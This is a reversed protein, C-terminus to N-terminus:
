VQDSDTRKEIKTQQAELLFDKTILTINDNIKPTNENSIVKGEVRAISYGRKLVQNPHLANKLKETANLAQNREKVFSETQRKLKVTLQSLEKEQNRRVTHEAKAMQALLSELKREQSGIQSKVENLIIRSLSQLQQQNNQIGMRVNGIVQNSIRDIRNFNFQLRNVARMQLREIENNLERETQKQFQPVMKKILDTMQELPREFAQFCRVLMEALETPTIGNQHAIMEAVTLNTSHGIGTWVPIPFQAIAKCLEYNNYCALGVEGGGGRIIVVVDFLDINQKVRNLAAIISPPAADGQLYAQFLHSTFVYGNENHELVKYFDSLGKSSQASIVAIRKPLLPIKLKQNANIIGAKDLRKLTETREQQLQGLTFSPDIDLITLSIGHTESFAVKALMLIETGEKLREKAIEFFKREIGDMTSKWITGGMQAQIKGDEKHLLEPFSHGSPYRNLKHLEAKIWYASKYREAITKQISKAVQKLTFIKRDEPM